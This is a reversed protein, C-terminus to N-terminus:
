IGGFQVLTHTLEGHALEVISCTSELDFILAGMGVWSDSEMLDLV